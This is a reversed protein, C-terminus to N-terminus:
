NVRSMYPFSFRYSLLVLNFCVQDIASGLRVIVLLEVLCICIMLWINPGLRRMTNNLFHYSTEANVSM